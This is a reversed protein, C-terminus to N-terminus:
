SEKKSEDRTLLLIIITVCSLCDSPWYSFDVLSFARNGTWYERLIPVATTGFSGASTDKCDKSEETM